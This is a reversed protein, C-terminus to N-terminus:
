QVRSYMGVFAHNRPYSHYGTVFIIAPENAPQHVHELLIAMVLGREKFTKSIAVRRGTQIQSAFDKSSCHLVTIICPPVEYAGGAGPCPVLILM